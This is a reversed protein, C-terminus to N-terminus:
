DISERNEKVLDIVFSNVAKTPVITIVSHNVIIEKIGSEKARATSFLPLHRVNKDIPLKYNATNKGNKWVCAWSFQSCNPGHDSIYDPELVAVKYINGNLVVKQCFVPNIIRGVDKKGDILSHLRGHRLQTVEGKYNVSAFKVDRYIEAYPMDYSYLENLRDEQLEGLAINQFSVAGSAGEDEASAAIILSTHEETWELWKRQDDLLLAREGGRVQQLRHWFMKWQFLESIGAKTFETAKDEMGSGYIAEANLIATWCNIYRTMLHKQELEEIDDPALISLISGQVDKNQREIVGKIKNTFQGYSTDDLLNTAGKFISTWAEQPKDQQVETTEFKWWLGVGLLLLLAVTILGIKNTNMHKM